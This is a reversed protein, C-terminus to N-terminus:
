VLFIDTFFITALYVSRKDQENILERAVIIDLGLKAIVSFISTCVLACSFIGFQEPVLYRAVWIGVFLGVDTRLMQEGMMWSTNKFYRMFGTHNKLAIIKQIL